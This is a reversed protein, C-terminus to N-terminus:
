MIPNQAAPKYHLIILCHQLENPLRVTLIM